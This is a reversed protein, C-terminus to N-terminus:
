WAQCKNEKEEIEQMKKQKEQEKKQKGQEKAVKKVLEEAEREKAADAKKREKM